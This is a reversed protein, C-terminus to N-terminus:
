YALALSLQLEAQKADELCNCTSNKAYEMLGNEKWDHGYFGGCSDLQENCHNCTTTYWYVDGTLYQDYTEVENKLCQIIKNKRTKTINKWTYEKRIKEYTIFIYGVMGWDWGMSDIESFGCGARMTIGSHDYLYLPIAISTKENDKLYQLLGEPSDEYYDEGNGHKDLIMENQFEHKDGLEYRRHFCAMTGLNDWERPSESLDEEPYINITIDDLEITDVPELHNCM